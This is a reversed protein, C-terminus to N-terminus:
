HEIDKIFKKISNKSITKGKPFKNNYMKTIEGFSHGNYTRKGLLDELKAYESEYLTPFIEACFQLTIASAILEILDNDTVDKVSNKLYLSCIARFFYLGVSNVDKNSLLGSCLYIANNSYMFDPVVDDFESLRLKYDYDCKFKDNLWIRIIDFKYDKTTNEIWFDGYKKEYDEWDIRQSVSRMKPLLTKFLSDLSEENPYVPIFRDCKIDGKEISYNYSCRTLSHIDTGDNEISQLAQFIDSNKFKELDVAKLDGNLYPPYYYRSNTLSDYAFQILFYLYTVKSDAVCCKSNPKAPCKSTIFFCCLLFMLKRIM